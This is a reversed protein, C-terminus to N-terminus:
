EAREYGSGARDPGIGATSKGGVQLSRRYAAWQADAILTRLGGQELKYLAAITAGAPTAVQQKLVPLPSQSSEARLVTGLITSYVLDEAIPRPLGMHVGADTAAEMLLLYYAPGCGAVATAADLLNEAPIRVAFGMTQLQEQLSKEQRPDLVCSVGSVSPITWVTVGRQVSSNTNPMIRVVRNSKFDSQMKDLVVGLVMSVVVADSKLKGQISDVAAQYYNPKVALYIFDPKFKEVAKENCEFVPHGEQRYADLVATNVDSVAINEANYIKRFSSCIAAAMNGGGIFLM